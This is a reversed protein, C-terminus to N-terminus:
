FIEANKNQRLVIHTTKLIGLYDYFARDYDSQSFMTMFRQSQNKLFGLYTRSCELITM